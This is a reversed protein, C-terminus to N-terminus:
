SQFTNIETEVIVSITMLATFMDAHSIKIDVNFSIDSTTLDDFLLCVFAFFVLHIFGIKYNYILVFKTSALSTVNKSMRAVLAYM